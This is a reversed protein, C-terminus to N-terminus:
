TVGFNSKFKKINVYESDNFMLHGITQESITSQRIAENYKGKKILNVEKKKENNLEESIVILKSSGKKSNSIKIKPEEQSNCTYELLIPEKSGIQEKFSWSQKVSRKFFAM